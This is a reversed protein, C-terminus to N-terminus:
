DRSHEYFERLPYFVKDFEERCSLLGITHFVYVFDYVYSSTYRHDKNPKTM